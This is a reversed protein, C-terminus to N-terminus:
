VFGQSYYRNTKEFVCVFHYASHPNFVFEVQCNQSRLFFKIPGEEISNLWAKVENNAGVFNTGQECRIKTVPGRIAM